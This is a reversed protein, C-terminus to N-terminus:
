FYKYKGAAVHEHLPVVGHGDQKGVDDVERGEGRLKGPLLQDLEEVHQEELEILRGLHTHKIFIFFKILYGVNFYVFCFCM